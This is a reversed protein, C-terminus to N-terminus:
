FGQLVRRKHTIEVERFALSLKVSVPHGNSFTAYTGTPAYDVEIRELVCTNVRLIHDNESGKNFFTIDFEAPPVFTPDLYSVEPSAHFRLTKIIEKISQSEKENAPALLFEFTYQKQPTNAFLVEVRPNIPMNMMSMINGIAEGAGSFKQTLNKAAQTGARAALGVGVAKFGLSTLSVEEYKNEHTNILGGNPMFIAISEAIRRTWRGFSLEGVQTTLAPDIPLLQGGTNFRLRDVKSLEGLRSSYLTGHKGRRFGLLDVPVNINIVMYHGVYDTTLNDPFYRYNFDYKSSFLSQPNISTNTLKVM